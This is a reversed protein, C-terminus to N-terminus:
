GQESESVSRIYRVNDEEKKEEYEFGLMNVAIEVAEKTGFGYKDQKAVAGLVYILTEARTARREEMLLREMFEM